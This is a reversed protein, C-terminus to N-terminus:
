FGLLRLITSLIDGQKARMEHIFSPLLLFGTQIVPCLRCYPKQSLTSLGGATPLKLLNLIEAIGNHDSDEFAAETTFSFVKSWESKNGYTGLIQGAL